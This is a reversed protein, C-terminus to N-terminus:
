RDSAPADPMPCRKVQARERELESQDNAAIHLNLPKTEELFQRAGLGLMFNLTRLQALDAQIRDRSVDTLKKHRNLTSLNSSLEFAQMALGGIAHVLGFMNAYRNRDKLSMHAVAGSSTAADWTTTTWLRLGFPQVHTDAPLTGGEVIADLRDLKRKTCDQQLILEISTMQADTLEGDLSEKSEGVTENWHITEVVQEAALAILVGIVIIGVEGALERWGHLPKPLHFHM